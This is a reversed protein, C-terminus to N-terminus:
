GLISTAHHEVFHVGADASRHRLDNATLELREAERALHEAHSVQRLHGALAMVMQADGLEGVALGRPGRNGFEGHVFARFFQRAHQAAHFDGALSTFVRALHQV